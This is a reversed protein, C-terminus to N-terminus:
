VADHGGVAKSLANGGETHTGFEGLALMLGRQFFDRLALPPGSERRGFMSRHSEREVLVSNKIKRGAVPESTDVEEEM